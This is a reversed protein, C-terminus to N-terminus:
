HRCNGSMAEKTSILLSCFVGWPHAIVSVAEAAKPSWVKWKAVKRESQKAIFNLQCSLWNGWPIICSVANNNYTLINSQINVSQNPFSEKPEYITHLHGSRRHKFLCFCFRKYLLQLYLTQKLYSLIYLKKWCGQSNLAYKIISCSYLLRVKHLLTSIFWTRRVPFLKIAGM